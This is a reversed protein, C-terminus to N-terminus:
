SPVHAHSVPYWREGDLHASVHVVPATAALGSAPLAQWHLAPQVPLLHAHKRPTPPASPASAGQREHLLSLAPGAYVRLPPAHTKAVPLVAGAGGEADDFVM